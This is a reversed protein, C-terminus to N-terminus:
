QYVRDLLQKFYAPAYLLRSGYWSFMEGDVLLIQTDPLQPQIQEMHKEKFPFPESSLLLLRCDRNRLENISVQPYRSTENFINIFGCRGMLHHIFTGSGAAMYPDNWVLYAAPLNKEPRALDTLELFAKEIDAVLANAPDGTGTMAGVIRIMGYADALSAIDSIWVPYHESLSEIQEKTNEEKNALILDPHLQDVTSINIKKTGGIRTKERFWKEPHVCFKTIGIVTEDLGLWALLETQSPVLSVIRSPIKPLYIERGCQDTFMPMGAIQQL